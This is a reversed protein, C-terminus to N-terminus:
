NVSRVTLVLLGGLVIVIATVLYLTSYGGLHTVMVAALVPGLVQPASNAVNLIGLDKGRGNASPLVQTMLAYEVAIYIGFGLGLLVAAVLSAHWTPDLGLLLAAAAMLVAGAIINRKRRGSRDSLWGSVFAGIILAAAYIVVLVALGQAATRGPFLRQFHIADRLFYLLYLTSLASGLQVLFRMCWARSFDPYRRPDIWFGCLFESTNWPPRQHKELRTNRVMLLFPATCAILLGATMWYGQTIGTVLMAVLVTGVVVGLPQTIGTWASCVARQALPVQDPLEALLAALLANLGFQAVCWWIAAGILSHQYGLMILGVAGLIIGFLNWPRRRGFRSTTRDSWAGCLPNAFVAMLAGAGTVWGLASEKNTPAIVEMQEALLVQIPTLFALWMGLYSLTYTGIFRTGVHVTPEALADPLPTSVANM